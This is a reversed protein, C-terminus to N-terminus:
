RVYLEGKGPEWFCPRIFTIEDKYICYRTSEQSYSALRHRVLEHSVGRDCVIRVSVSIHELVSEHGRSILLAIFRTATDPTTKMESKYCTRGAKEILLSFEGWQEAPPNIIEFGPEVIKM